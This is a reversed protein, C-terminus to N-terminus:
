KAERMAESGTRMAGEVLYSLITRNGVLIDGTLTMGPILRFDAPVERLKVETIAIRVKFYPNVPQNNEDLTFSGESINKVTGKALGHRLFDYAAFKINVQDAPRIFGVDSAPVNITAELPSDLPVLTFLAGASEPDTNQMTLAVSGTSIKGVKLVIADAPSTLTSLDLLKQAKQLNEKTANYDDRVTVLQTSTDSSWQQVYAAKQARLAAASQQQASIQNQAQGLLRSMEEKSDQATALQQRSVYGKKVLPAYMGQVDAALEMRKKYQEADQSYQSIVAQANAIQADYNSLTAHYQAQRQKYLAMQTESFSNNASPLYAKGNYEAQLREMTALDSDLKQQLQTVDAQTLTPDLTALVQDKKVVDGVKVKIERVIGANLPSVYLQGGASVVEGNGSVVRDLKVVASLLVLFSLMGVIVYLSLRESKPSTRLLVDATESEFASVIEALRTSSEARDPLQKPTSRVPLQSM